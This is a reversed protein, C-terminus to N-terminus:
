SQKQSRSSLLHLFYILLVFLLAFIPYASGQEGLYFAYVKSAFVFVASLIFFMPFYPYGMAKYKRPTPDKQRLIYMSLVSLTAGVVMVLSVTSFIYDWPVLLIVVSSILAQAFLAKVPTNKHPHLEKAKDWFAGDIALAFAVRAGGLITANISALLAISILVVMFYQAWTGGLVFAIASGMDQQSQHLNQLGDYGLVYIATGCLLLYLVTVILTGGVLSYPLTKEPTKVEGAVYIIANWGSYAFYADLFGSAISSISTKDLTYQNKITLEHWQSHDSLYAYVAFALLFFLPIYTTIGQFISSLKLGEYHMFTMLWLLVLAFIQAYSIQLWSSHYLIQSSDFGTLLSLQYTCLPVTMAAISGAFGASLLGWGYAFSASKGLASRHFVYDGGSHPLLVGLEAYASAGSLAIVGTFFWLLMFVLPDGIEKAMQVPALFIGIGLMSGAVLSIGDFIGIKRELEEKFESM